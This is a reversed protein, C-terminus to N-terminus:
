TSNHVFISVNYMPNKLVHTDKLFNQYHDWYEERHLEFQLVHKISSLIGGNDSTSLSNFNGSIKGSNALKFTKSSHRYKTGVM